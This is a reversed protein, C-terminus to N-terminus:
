SLEAGVEAAGVIRRPRGYRSAIAVGAMVIVGGLLTRFGPVEGVLIFALVFTVPPLLYLFAAGRAAGMHGIVFAWAAYGIAAPFVGLELVALSTATSGHAVSVLGQPLWPVLFVAGAVLICAISPLAGYRQILSKQLITYTAGCVAAGFVLTAGSGLAVGGSQGEAILAVGAFSIVSGLWGWLPMREGLFIVALIAAMLPAASILLSAAGSSVTVEGCNFLINYFSIGILGCALVRPMDRLAPLVPRKWVIWLVALVAAVAYRVAALPVPALEHLAIRVVPYASAWSVIAIAVFFPLFRGAGNTM